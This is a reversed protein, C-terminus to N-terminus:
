NISLTLKILSIFKVSEIEWNLEHRGIEYSDQRAKKLAERNYHYSTLIDSLDTENAYLKGPVSYNEFFDVQALTNSAAVALGCQIYTFLKNTLCINRNLPVHPEAALGIDFTKALEFVNDPAVTDYFVIDCFFPDALALLVQRYGAVENGLLHLQMKIGTLNIAKIILEIGRNPGITQSFWFLQLPQMTDENAQYTAAKPFVNLISICDVQYLSKYRAAILPSAATFHNLQPIYKDEIAIKLKVDTSSTDDTVENRHFDEADFGTLANNKKAAQVAVPLAGLNHAIYIDATFLAAKKVQWVFNRNLMNCENKAVVTSLKSLLRNLKSLFSTGTWNLVDYTWEPNATLIGTDYKVQGAVYQTFVIHVRFGAQSLSEAEKVLRPNTSIHGPTILCVKKL